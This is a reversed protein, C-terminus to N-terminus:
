RLDPVSPFRSLHIGEWGERSGGLIPRTMKRQADISILLSGALASREPTKSVDPSLLHIQEPVVTGM